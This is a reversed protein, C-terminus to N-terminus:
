RPVRLTQQSGREADRRRPDVGAPIASVLMARGRCPSM